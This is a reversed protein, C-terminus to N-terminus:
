PRRWYGYVCRQEIHAIGNSNRTQGPQLKATEWGDPREIVHWDRQPDHTDHIVQDIVATFHKSVRVILTGDPLEGDTLHVKCGSGIHMTPTWRWGFSDMLRRATAPYVGTRPHSIGKKRKGVREDSALELIYDYIDQYPRGTAIAVARTLCDGAHGKYGAAARGGDDYQFKM